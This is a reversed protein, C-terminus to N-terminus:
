GRPNRGALAARLARVVEAGTAPRDDVPLAPPPGLSEATALRALFVALAAHTVADGRHADGDPLMRMWGRSIAEAVPDDVDVGLMTCALAALRAREVTARHSVSEPDNGIRGSLRELYEVSPGRDGYRIATEFADAAGRLDGREMRCRGIFYWAERREADDESRRAVREFRAEAAAYDGSVFLRIAEDMASRRNPAPACAALAAVLVALSAIAAQTWGQGARRRRARSVTTSRTM